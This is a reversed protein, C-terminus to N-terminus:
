RARLRALAAYDDKLDEYLKKYLAFYDLYLRHTAEDPVLPDVYEVWQKTITFDKFVGTAVGALVADGFPAGTRRKVMATEIGFVDTIIRRWLRSVAGGENLILPLNTKLGAEEVLTYNHYMAYAVGEMLARVLHGKTHNLSLGFITGRANPDWLPSREGMLFPLAILGDSGAPVKEAQYNLLDYSSVGCSEEVVREAQSFTDRVYRITQGGTLTTPVTVFTGRTTYPFNILLRGADSFTFEIDDYLVGLNGVTGLNSQLDGPETAGAGIWSANCDVQGAAVPTGAALGTARAAAKTVEGIVDVSDYVRPMMEMSIGIEDMLRADFVRKRLNFAVGYFAAGSCHISAVGTLRLAIFGDITLAKWIRAYDSPRNRKEWLLNVLNPHDDLRYGSTGFVRDEGVRQKIWEVEKRARRDMLNYGRNVPNHDKDVMVLSPLASSVAIGRIRSPDVGAQKVSSAIISCAVSWYNEADHESWGDHEHISPYEEFANGLDD